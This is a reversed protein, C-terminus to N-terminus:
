WELQEVPRHWRALWAMVAYLPLALVTNVVASPAVVHQFFYRWEMRGGTVQIVAFTVLDLLLTGGLAVLLPPLLNGRVLQFEGAGAAAGLAGLLVANLGAPTSAFQDLILGGLLGWLLGQRWGRVAGWCVVVVLMLDPKVGLIRLSPAASAQLVGVLGLTPLALWLAM